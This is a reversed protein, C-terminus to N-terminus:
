LIWPLFRATSNTYESYAAGFRESLEREETRVRLAPISLTLLIGAGGLLWNASMGWLSLM